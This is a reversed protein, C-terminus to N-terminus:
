ILDCLESRRCMQHWSTMWWRKAYSGGVVVRWASCEVVRGRKRSRARFTSRGAYRASGIDVDWPSHRTMGRTIWAASPANSLGLPFFRDRGRSPPSLIAGHGAPRLRVRLHYPPPAPQPHHPHPCAPMPSPKHPIRGSNSKCSRPTGSTTGFCSPQLPRRPTLSQDWILEPPCMSPSGAADAGERGGKAANGPDRSRQSGQLVRRVAEESASRTTLWPDRMLSNRAGDVLPSTM